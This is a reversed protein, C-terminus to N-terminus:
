FEGQFGEEWGIHGGGPVELCAVGLWLQSRAVATTSRMTAGLGSGSLDRGLALWDEQSERTALM